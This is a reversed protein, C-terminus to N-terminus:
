EKAQALFSQYETFDEPDMHLRIYEELGIDNKENVYRTFSLIGQCAEFGKQQMDQQMNPPLGELWEEFDQVTPSFTRAKQHYRYAINGNTFLLEHFRRQDAPCQTLFAEQRQNCDEDPHKVKIM